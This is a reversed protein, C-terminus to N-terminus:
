TENDDKNALKSIEIIKELVFKYANPKTSKIGTKEAFLDMAKNAYKAALRLYEPDKQSQPIIPIFHYGHLPNVCLTINTRGIHYWTNHVANSFPSFAHSYIDKCNAEESMSHIDGGTWSGVDVDTLFTFRQSNIWSEISDLYDDEYIKKEGENVVKMHELHLKAQGLGYAVYQKSREVPDMFIWALNIYAEVM